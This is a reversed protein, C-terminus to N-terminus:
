ARPCSESLILYPFDSQKLQFCLIHKVTWCWCFGPNQKWTLMYRHAMVDGFDKGNCGCSQPAGVKKCRAEDKLDNFILLTPWCGASAKWGWRPPSPLHAPAWLHNVIVALPDCFARSLKRVLCARRSFLTIVMHKWYVPCIYGHSLLHPRSTTFPM